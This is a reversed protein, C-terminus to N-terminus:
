RTKRGPESARDLGEFLTEYARLLEPVQRQWSLDAEVRARGIRGM